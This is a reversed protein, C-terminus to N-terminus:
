EVLKLSGFRFQKGKMPLLRVRNFGTQRAQPSVQLLRTQLGSGGLLAAVPQEVILRNDRYYAIAYASEVNVELQLWAYNLYAPFDVRLGTSSLVLGGFQLPTAAEALTKILEGGFYYRDPVILSNYYGLNMRVITILRQPDFLKGRVILRLADYYRALDPDVIQNVQTRLTDLYGDPIVRLMHGPRWQPDRVPPIHALLPDVLAYTDVIRKDAGAYFAIMGVPGLVWLREASLAAKQGEKAWAHLPQAAQPKSNLLSNELFILREDAIGDEFDRNAHLDVQFDLTPSHASGGLGAALLACLLPVARPVHRFDFSMILLAGLFISLTLFRGAMFDGGIVVVYALYLWSGFVLAALRWQRMWFPLASGVLIIILSLPDNKLTYFLYRLGQLLLDGPPITSTLKAYYTNPFPFGYYLLSFVEWILVPLLGVALQLLTNWGRRQIFVVLLVPLYLLLTDARSLFALAAILALWLPLRAAQRAGLLVAVFVAALLHNLPNELGASSYDVFASSFALLVLGLAAGTFSGAARCAAVGVAALSVVVSLAIPVAYPDRWLAYAGTLLLLWLPHTYAQVREGQNYVPGFGHVFQDAVRMTIFVDDGVWARAAVIGVLLVLLLGLFTKQRLGAVWRLPSFRFNMCIRLGKIRLDQGFYIGVSGLFFWFYKVSYRRSTTGAAQRV